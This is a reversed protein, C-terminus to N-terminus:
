KRHKADEAAREGLYESFDIWESHSKVLLQNHILRIFVKPGSGVRYQINRWDRHKNKHKAQVKRVSIQLQQKAVIAHIAADVEDGSAEKEKGESHSAQASAAPTIIAPRNAAVAAVVAPASSHVNFEHEEEEAHAEEHIAEEKLKEIEIDYKVLESPAVNYQLAGVRILQFLTNLVAKDNKRSILDESEFLSLTPIHLKNKCQELFKSVNDRAQFSNPQATANSKVTFENNFVTLLDCLAVGNALRTFLYEYRDETPVKAADDWHLLPAIWELSDLAHARLYSQTSQQRHLDMLTSSEREPM